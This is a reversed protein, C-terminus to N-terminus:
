TVAPLKLKNWLKRVYDAGAEPLSPLDRQVWQTAVGCTLCCIRFDNRNGDHLEVVLYHDVTKHLPGPFKFDPGNNLEVDKYDGPGM